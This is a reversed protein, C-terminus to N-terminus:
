VVFYFVINDQIHINISLLCDSCFDPCGCQAQGAVDPRLIDHHRPIDPPYGVALFVGEYFDMVFGADQALFIPNVSDNLLGGDLIDRSYFSLPVIALNNPISHNLMISYSDRALFVTFVVNAAQFNLILFLLCHNESFRSISIFIM